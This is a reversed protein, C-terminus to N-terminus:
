NSGQSLSARPSLTASPRWRASPSTRASKASAQVKPMTKWYKEITGIRSPMPGSRPTQCAILASVSEIAAKWTPRNPKM